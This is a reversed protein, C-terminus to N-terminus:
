LIVLMLRNKCLAPLMVLCSPLVSMTLGQFSGTPLLLQLRGPPCSGPAMSTRERLGPATPPSPSEVVVAYLSAPLGTGPVLCCRQRQLFRQRSPSYSVYLSAVTPLTQAAFRPTGMQRARLPPIILHVLASEASQHM